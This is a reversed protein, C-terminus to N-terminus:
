RYRSPDYITYFIQTTHVIIFKWQFWVKQLLNIEEISLKNNNNSHLFSFNLNKKIVKIKKSVVYVVEREFLLEEFKEIREDFGRVFLEIM